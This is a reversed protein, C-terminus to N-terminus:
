AITWYQALMKCQQFQMNRSMPPVAPSGFKMDSASALLHPENQLPHTQDHLRPLLLQADVDLERLDNTQICQM